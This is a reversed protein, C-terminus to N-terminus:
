VPTHTVLELTQHAPLKMLEYESVELRSLWIYLKESIGNLDMRRSPTPISRAVYYNVNHDPKIIHQEHMWRLMSIGNPIEQFGYLARVIHIHNIRQHQYKHDIKPSDRDIMWYLCIIQSPYPIRYSQFISLALPAEKEPSTISSQKEIFIGVTPDQTTTNQDIKISKLTQHQTRHLISKRGNNWTFMIYFGILALAFTYWAGELFKGMGACALLIEIAMVSILLFTSLIRHQVKIALYTTIVMLSAVSLGYAHGLHKSSQFIGIALLAGLHMLTNMAPIYIQGSQSSSTHIIRMRPLYGLMMGQSALSFVGSIVAQSAILSAITALIILPVLSWTSAMEYFPNSSNPHNLLWAGQGLYNFMLAPWIFFNWTRVIPKRGFHGLDAYLAEAGTVSLLIHGLVGFIPTHNNQLFQIANLPNFAKFIVLNQAIHSIGLLGISIFWIVMIPGFLQGIKHTGLQQIRFLLTLLIAAIAPLWGDLNLHPMATELGEIAGLVSIAPTLIGDGMFLALGGIGILLRRSLTALALIGGEGHNHIRLMIHAYKVTVILFITWVFVSMLGIVDHTPCGKLAYLPSTGIDGYVIGLVALWSISTIKM